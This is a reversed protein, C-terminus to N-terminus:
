TRRSRRRPTPTLLDPAVEALLMAAARDVLREWRRGGPDNAIQQSTLGTLIATTLDPADPDTIGLEAMQADMRGLATLAVAYSEPSPEFGPITRLFLLQYRVPDSTCFQFFRHAFHRARALADGTPPEADMWGIFEEYGQRFMADYIEDKSAFYSYVSQARMGVREGLDRMSLGSLGTARALDWAASVIEARTAERRLARRDLGTATLGTATM